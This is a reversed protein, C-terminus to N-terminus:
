TFSRLRNLWGTLYKGKSPDSRVISRYFNERGAKLMAFLDGPYNNIAAITKPGVIGDDNVGIIRQISKIGSGGSNIYWDLIFGAVKDNCVQDLYIKDWYHKKYFAIVDAELAPIKENHALPQHADVVRWGPGNPHASRMIGAYTHEAAFWGGEFKLTHEIATKFNAM